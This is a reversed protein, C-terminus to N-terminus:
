GFLFSRSEIIAATNAILADAIDSLIKNKVQTNQVALTRSANKAKECIGLVTSQVNM